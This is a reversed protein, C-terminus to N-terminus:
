LTFPESETGSRRISLYDRLEKQDVHVGLGLTFEKAKERMRELIPFAHRMPLAYEGEEGTYLLVSGVEDGDSTRMPIEGLPQYRRGGDEVYCEALVNLVLSGEDKWQPRITIGFQAAMNRTLIDGPVSRMELDSHERRYAALNVVHGTM